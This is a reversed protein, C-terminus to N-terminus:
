SRPQYKRLTPSQWLREIVEEQQAVVVSVGDASPKMIQLVGEALPGPGYVALRPATAQGFQLDYVGEREWTATNMHRGMAYSIRRQPCLETAMEHLVASLAPATFADVARRIALATTSLPGACWDRGTMSVCAFTFPSGIYTPPLPPQLRPRFSVVITLHVLDDDEQMSRAKCVESCMHALVVDNVSVRATSAARAARLMTDVEAQRIDIICTVTARQWAWHRLWPVPPGLPVVAEAAFVHPIRLAPLLPPPCNADDTAWWDWQVRPLGACLQVLTQERQLSTSSGAACCDVLQPEFRPLMDPAVASTADGAAFMARNVAAWVRMFVMIAAIDCLAHPWRASVAVGGCAFTTLQVAMCPLGCYADTTTALSTTSFLEAVHLSTNVWMGSRQSRELISPALQALQLPSHAVVLEVGPDADHGWRLQLCGWRQTHGGSADYSVPELQGCFYPFYSLAHMLSAALLETSLAGAADCDWLWVAGALPGGSLTNDVISLRV